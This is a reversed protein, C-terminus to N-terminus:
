DGFDIVAFERFLKNTAIIYIDIYQSGNDVPYLTRDNDDIYTRFIPSPYIQVGNVYTMMDPEDFYLYDNYRETTRDNVRQYTITQAQQRVYEYCDCVDAYNDKTIGTLTDSIWIKPKGSQTNMPLVNNWAWLIFHNTDPDENRGFETKEYSPNGDDYFTYEVPVYRNNIDDELSMRTFDCIRTLIIRLDCNYMTKWGHFMEDKYWCHGLYVYADVCESKNYHSLNEMNFDNLCQELTKGDINYPENKGIDDLYIVPKVDILEKIQIKSYHGTSNFFGRALQQRAGNESYIYNGESTKWPNNMCIIPWNSASVGTFVYQYTPQDAYLDQANYLYMYVEKLKTCNSFMARINNFFCRINRNNMTLIFIPAYELNNCEKFMACYSNSNLNNITHEIIKPGRKLGSCYAFLMYYQSLDLNELSVKVNNIPSLVLNYADVLYNSYEWVDEITYIDTISGLSEIYSPQNEGTVNKYSLLGDIQSFLAYYIDTNINSYLSKLNGYVEHECTCNITTPMYFDYIDGDVDFEYYFTLSKIYDSSTYWIITIDVWQNAYLDKSTITTMRKPNYAKNQSTGDSYHFLVDSIALGAPILIVVHGTGHMKITLPMARYYDTNSDYENDNTLLEVHTGQNTFPKIKVPKNRAKEKVNMLKYTNEYGFVVNNPTTIQNKILNKM